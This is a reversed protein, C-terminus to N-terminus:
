ATRGVKHITHSLYSVQIQQTPNTQPFCEPGTEGRFHKEESFCCEPVKQIWTWTARRQLSDWCWLVATKRNSDPQKKYKNSRPICKRLWTLEDSLNQYCISSQPETRTQGVVRQPPRDWQPVPVTNVFTQVPEDFEETPAEDLKWDLQKVRHSWISGALHAPFSSFQGKKWPWWPDM